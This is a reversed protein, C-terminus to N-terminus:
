QEHARRLSKKLHSLRIAQLTLVTLLAMSISILASTESTMSRVVLEVRERNAIDMMTTATGLDTIATFNYVGLPLRLALRPATSGLNTSNIILQMPALEFGAAHRVSIEIERSNIEIVTPRRASLKLSGLFGNIGISYIKGGVNVTMEEELDGSPISIISPFFYTTENLKMNSMGEINIEYDTIFRSLSLDYVMLRYLPVNVSTTKFAGEKPDLYLVEIAKSTAEGVELSLEQTISPISVNEPVVLFNLIDSSSIIGPGSQLLRLNIKGLRLPVIGRPGVEGIRPMQIEVSAPKDRDSQSLVATYIGVISDAEYSYFIGAVNGVLSIKQPYYLEARVFMTGRRLPINLREGASVVESGNSSPFGAISSGVVAIRIQSEGTHSLGLYIPPGDVLEEVVIRMKDNESLMLTWIGVDGDQFTKVVRREGKELLYLTSTDDPSILEVTTNSSVSLVSLSEGTKFTLSSGSVFPLLRGDGYGVLLLPEEQSLATPIIIMLPLLFIATNIWARWLKM